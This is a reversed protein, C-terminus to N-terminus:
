KIEYREYVSMLEYLVSCNQVSLSDIVTFGMMCYTFFKPLHQLSKYRLKIWSIILIKNLKLTDEQIMDTQETVMEKTFELQSFVNYGETSKLFCFCMHLLYGEDNVSLQDM